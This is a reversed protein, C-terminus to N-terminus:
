RDLQLRHWGVITAVIWIGAFPIVMTLQVPSVAAGASLAWLAPAALPMWGGAGAIVSVQAVVLLGIAVGVAALVSRGLTAALTAPTALMAGALSLVGLRVLGGLAEPGPVGLGAVIGAGLMVLPLMTAVGISWIGYALLKAGAITARGVPLAFLGHVVHDTFERGVMWGVVVASGLLGGAGTVQIATDLFGSWDATLASGFKATIEARGSRVALMMALAIVTVGGIVAVTTVRGVLSAALKHLEARLAAIM